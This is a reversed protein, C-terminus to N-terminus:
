SNESLIKLTLIKTQLTGGCVIRCLKIYFRAQVVIIQIWIITPAPSKRHGSYVDFIHPIDGAGYGVFHKYEMYLVHNTHTASVNLESNRM